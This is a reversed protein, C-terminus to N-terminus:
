LSCFICSSGKTLYFEAVATIDNTLISDQPAMSYSKVKSLGDFIDNFYALVSGRTVKCINYLSECAYYRIRQDPDTFCNLAPKVLYEVYRNADQSSM